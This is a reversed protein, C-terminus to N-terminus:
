QDDSATLKRITQDLPTGERLQLARKLLFLTFFPLTIVHGAAGINGTSFKFGWTIAPIKEDAIVANLSRAKTKGAKVEIPVIQDQVRILFDLETRADKSRYFFLDYGQKTLAEAALNEYMAGRYVGLNKNVRLDEQSEEDMSALLLSTDAFYIRYNSPDENGKLPLTLDQSCYCINVVGADSLWEQTGEYQSARAGHGLRTIQFKHNEKGLQPAIHRYVNRIRATELGETYKGIDDDYDRFIQKQMKLIGSFNHNEAFREVIEPMGGTLIYDMFRQNMQDMMLSSFPKLNLLNQLIRETLSEDYGCAWLFEEFDMSYMDYDEKFGVSVSSVEKYHIGLSSGSCIVDYRGDQSFFKLSVTAEMYEQIEDFFILTKGPIFLADPNLITINRIVSDPDYGDEFIQKYKPEEAFNIEIVSQYHNRAFFRISTTKGTQRAGKIILPKHNPNRKWDTLFQDIKRKLMFIVSEQHSNCYNVDIYIQYICNKVIFKLQLICNKVNYKVQSHCFVANMLVLNM